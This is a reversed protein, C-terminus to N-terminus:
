HSGNFEDKEYCRRLGRDIARDALKEKDKKDKIYEELRELLERRKKEEKESDM